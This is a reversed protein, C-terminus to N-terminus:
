GDVARAVASIDHFEAAHWVIYISLVILVIVNHLFYCEDGCARALLTIGVLHCCPELFFGLLMAGCYSGEIGYGEFEVATMGAVGAVLVAVGAGELM